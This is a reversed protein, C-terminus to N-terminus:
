GELSPACVLPAEHVDREWNNQLYQQGLMGAMSDLRSALRYRELMDYLFDDPAFPNNVENSYKQQADAGAFIPRSIIKRGNVVRLRNFELQLPTPEWDDGRDFFERVVAKLEESTNEYLVYDNGLSRFSMSEWPEALWELPSLFRNRSKSYIHKPLGIDGKKQPFGFLWNSMNTLIVPRQLLLALDYIGSTMGIYLRCASILYLDMKASKAETFPYDIVREMAPLKTMSADGLRVVWGGRGTIEEIAGIFNAISANRETTSDNHFGSERVHLCVFWADIPLGLRVRWNEAIMKIQKAPLVHLPLELQKRWNFNDVVDWSFDPMREEPQWLTMAGVMPVNYLHSQYYPGRLVLRVAMGRARLFAYYVTILVRGIVSLSHPLPYRYESEVNVIEINILRFKFRWPLEYPFLIVLKKHERRAKLLGFYIEEAANGVVYPTPTLIITGTLKGLWDCFRFLLIM